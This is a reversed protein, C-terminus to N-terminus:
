PVRYITVGDQQFAVPLYEDFQRLAVPDYKSRELRGVYVYTVGYRRLLALSQARDTNRYIQDVDQERGRYLADSGRWQGEHGAWGLVTQRGTRTAVRAFESYQGGVAELVVANGPANQQLWTQAAVEAPEFQRAYALGDLTPGRGNGDSRNMAGAAPYYLAIAM